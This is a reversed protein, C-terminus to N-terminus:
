RYYEDLIQFWREASKCTVFEMRLRESNPHLKSYAVGFKRMVTTARGEGYLDLVAQFHSAITEKQELLTPPAPIERGEMAAKTQSFLWPNGIIGRALAVGDVGTERMRKIVTEASFLDGCGIVPVHPCNRRHAVFEKVQALFNWDAKGQYRQVVTRGHVAVGDIGIDLLGGLINWFADQSEQSEDYGRRLKVTVPVDAPLSNRVNKAIGLACEPDALLYGGRRKGVVKKVPCAFNLDIIDFGFELLRQAALVFEESSAGMLQAGAPKDTDRVALYLRAKSRKSVDLIFQDLFVECLAFSAGFQRALRRMPADSYGSLPAQILPTDFSFRGIKLPPFLSTPM